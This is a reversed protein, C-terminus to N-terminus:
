DEVYTDEVVNGKKDIYFCKTGYVKGGTVRYYDFAYQEKGSENKAKIRIFYQGAKLKKPIEVTPLKLNEAKYIPKEFLYDTALEFTYVIDERNFDYSPDWQLNYGTKTKEPTGIYFPLPNTLSDKYRKYNDEMETPIYNVVHDFEKKTLPAHLLDRGSYLYPKILKAYTQVYSNIYEETFRGHLDEVAKDLEELFWESKLCRQFLRNGWYNSVGSEWADYDVRGLVRYEERRLMADIDWPLIYWRDVNQPSYLFFNRSQSDINGLLMNFAMWYTINEIDFHEKLITDIPISFDNIKELLAILKSHDDDGKIEMIEEFKKVDYEPDEKLRIADEYRYFECYNIKYLHGRKDLGHRQLATKNLQEVQTYIGYDQFKTEKEGTTDKVYLHVFTTRLSMIEEIDAMMDFALKNRFRLGETQHKNLAITTQGRWDGKNEKISIKYNKQPVKSSSQGRIQITCNSAVQGYGLEGAVPGKEDGVQLLGAVKYRDVGMDEYDYVSYTNIEEWTHNTGEAKNGKSVTLYMTVIETNDQNEYLLDKDRIHIDEETEVEYDSTDIVEKEEKKEEQEVVNCGTLGVLMSLALLFAIWRKKM